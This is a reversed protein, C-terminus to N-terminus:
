RGGTRVFAKADRHTIGAVHDARRPSWASVRAGPEPVRFLLKQPLGPVQLLAFPAGAHDVGSHIRLGEITNCELTQAESLLAGASSVAFAWRRRPLRGRAAALSHLKTAVAREILLVNELNNEVYVVRGGASRGVRISMGKADVHGRQVCLRFIRDVAQADINYTANVPLTPQVGQNGVSYNQNVHAGIINKIPM